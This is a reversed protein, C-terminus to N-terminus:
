SRRTRRIAGEAELAAIEEPSFGHEALIADQDQVFRPPPAAPGGPTRSFKIPTGLTKVGDLDAVMARHAAHPSELAADVPRVAGAPVGARILTIALTAGDHSALASEITSKLAARHALRDSNSVFRPDAAIDPRDLLTCLKRFQGDNGAAIFIDCTATAFTEYPAINPHANGTAAPRKGSLLYNAGAPHLLALATDHLTMDIFQGLGSRAREHLAMLIGIAAYLGTGLDVIPAGMRVPGSSPDGNITMLGTMAQVVADYGPLGGLPGDAGFGSVRCHILGPFTASLTEYGIGWKELSGPKFNEVLVDAGDLLRLLVARGSEQALDLSMARKGRNAGLYYSADRVGEGRDLFPPGWERVEDGQPPEIKIVEAGHDALIMTCYPGGLVRTLDIVKLGSLARQSM